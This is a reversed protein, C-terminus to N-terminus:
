FLSTDEIEIWGEETEVYTVDDVFDVEEGKSCKVAQMMLSPIFEPSEDYTEFSEFFSGMGSKNVYMFCDKEVRVTAKYQITYSAQGFVERDVANTQQFDILTLNGNSETSIRESLSTEADSSDPKGSCSTLILLSLIILITSKKLNM